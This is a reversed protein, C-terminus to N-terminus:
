SGTPLKLCCLLLASIMSINTLISYPILFLSLWSFSWSCSLSSYRSAFSLFLSCYRSSTIVCLSKSHFVFIYSLSLIHLSSSLTLSVTKQSPNSFYSNLRNLISSTLSQIMFVVRSDLSIPHNFLKCCQLSLKLSM